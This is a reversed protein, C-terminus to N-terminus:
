KNKLYMVYESIKWRDIKNLQSAYSNMNNKGYTIVYYVSGITMDRDKYNPIGLIKENKVLQGQGDGDNGHCISCNIQYLKEGNKLIDEKTGINKYFPYTIIKKSYDFGKNEIEDSISDYFDTRQVTGKVPILSSTKGNLFLSIQIKKIKKNYNFYPDSYPEYADSYYMNPMYVTNPKKKDLWCSELLLMVNLIIVIGYFCKKM